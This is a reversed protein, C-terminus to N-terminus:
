SDFYLTAGSIKEGGRHYQFKIRGGCHPDAQLLLTLREGPIVSRQFRLREIHQPDRQYGFVLRAAAIAWGLAAVGPLIPLGPFHGRFWASDPPVALELREGRPIPDRALILPHFRSPESEPSTKHGTM